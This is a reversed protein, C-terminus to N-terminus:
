GGTLARGHTERGGAARTRGAKGVLGQARKAIGQEKEAKAAVAPSTLPADPPRAPGCVLRELEEGASGKRGREANSAPEIWLFYRSLRVGIM